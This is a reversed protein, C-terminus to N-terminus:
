DSDEAWDDQCEPPLFVFAANNPRPGIEDDDPADGSPEQSGDSGTEYPEHTTVASSPHQFLEMVSIKRPFAVELFQMGFPSGSDAKIHELVASQRTM